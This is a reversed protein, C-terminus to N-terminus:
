HRRRWRSAVAAVIALTGLGVVMSVGCAIQGMVGDTVEQFRRFLLRRLFRRRLLRGRLLVEKGDHKKTAPMEQVIAEAAAPACAQVEAKAGAVPAAAALEAVCRECGCQFGKRELMFARREHVDWSLDFGHPAYNYTLREGSQIERKAIAVLVGAHEQVTYPEGYLECFERKSVITMNPDCSHNGLATFVYLASAAFAADVPQGPVGNDFSFENTEYRMLLKTMLEQGGENGACMANAAANLHEPVLGSEGAAMFAAQAKAMQVDHKAKGVLAAYAQFRMQYHQLGRAKATRADGALNPVVILPAEEFIPHGADIVQRATLGRGCLGHETETELEVYQGRDLSLPLLAFVLSLSDEQVLLRTTSGCIRVHWKQKKKDFALVECQAGDEELGPSSLLCTTGAHLLVRNGRIM